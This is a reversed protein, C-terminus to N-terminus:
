HRPATEEGSRGRHRRVINVVPESRWKLIELVYVLYVAGVLGVAAIASLVATWGANWNGHGDTYPVFRMALAQLSMLGAWAYISLVTRRQSWGIALFRHHFHSKDAGYVPLGHKLRKMIVFSTDDGLPQGVVCVLHTEAALDGFHRQLVERYSYQRRAAGALAALRPGLQYQAGGPLKSLM